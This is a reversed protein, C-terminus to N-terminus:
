GRFEDTTELSEPVISTQSVCLLSLQFLPALGFLQHSHYLRHIPKM